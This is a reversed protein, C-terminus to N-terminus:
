SSCSACGTPPTSTSSRSRWTRRRSCSSVLLAPDHWVGPPGPLLGGDPIRYDDPEGLNFTQAAQLGLERAVPKLLTRLEAMVEGHNSHPDPAVVYRGAWGEDCRDAGARRRRELLQELEPPRPGRVITTM